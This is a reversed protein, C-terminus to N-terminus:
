TKCWFICLLHFYRYIGSYDLAPAYNDMFFDGYFWGAFDTEDSPPGLCSYWCSVLSVSFRM